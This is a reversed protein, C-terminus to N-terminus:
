DLANLNLAQEIVQIRDQLASAHSAFVTFQEELQGLRASLRHIHIKASALDDAWSEVFAPRASEELCALRSDLSQLRQAVTIREAKLAQLLASLHQTLPEAVAM